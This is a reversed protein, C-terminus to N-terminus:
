NHKSKLCLAVVGVILIAAVSLVLYFGVDSNEPNNTVTASASASPLSTFSITHPPESAASPSPTNTPEQSISPLITFNASALPEKSGQSSTAFITITHNGETLGTLTLNDYLVGKEQEDLTYSLSGFLKNRTFILPVEGSNYIQDNNPSSISLTLPLYDAPVYRYVLDSSYGKAAVGGLIYFVDGIVGVGFSYVGLPTSSNVQWTSTRPNFIQTATDSFLYIKEQANIGSTAAGSGFALSHPLSPGFSWSNTQPDYIQFGHDPVFQSTEGFMGFVYIKGDSVASITCAVAVPMPALTRWSDTAPDYVETLNSLVPQYLFGSTYGGFRYIKGDLVSASAATRSIPDATKVEWSDTVPDYVQNSKGICYIKNQLTATSFSYDAQPMAQKIIWADTAIDYMENADLATGGPTCGGIAYIKDDLAAVGLNNRATPMATLTAWSGADIISIASVYNVPFLICSLLVILTMSLITLALVKSM